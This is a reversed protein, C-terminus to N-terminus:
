LSFKFNFRKQNEYIFSLFNHALQMSVLDVTSLQKISVSCNKIAFRDKIQNQVIHCQYSRSSNKQRVLKLIIKPREVVPMASTKSEIAEMRELKVFCGFKLKPDEQKHFILFESIDGDTVSTSSSEALSEDLNYSSHRESKMEVINDIPPFNTTELPTPSPDLLTPM